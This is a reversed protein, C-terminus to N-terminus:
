LKRRLRDKALKVVVEELSVTSVRVKVDRGIMRELEEVTLETLAKQGKERMRAM